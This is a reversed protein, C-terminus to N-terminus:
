EKTKQVDIDFYYIRTNVGDSPVYEYICRLKRGQVNKPYAYCNGTMAMKRIHM